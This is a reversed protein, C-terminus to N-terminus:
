VDSAERGYGLWAPVNHECWDRYEQMTNFARWPEDDLVPKYTRFFSNALHQEFPRSRVAEFDAWEEPDHSDM